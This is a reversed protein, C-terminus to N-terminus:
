PCQWSPQHTPSLAQHLWPAAYNICANLHPDFGASLWAKERTNSRWCGQSPIESHRPSCVVCLASKGGPGHQPVCPRARHASPVALSSAEQGSGSKALDGADQPRALAKSVYREKSGCSARAARSLGRPHFCLQCPAGARGLGRSPLPEPRGELDDGLRAPPTGLEAHWRSSACRWLPM